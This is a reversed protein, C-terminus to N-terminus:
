KKLVQIPLQVFEHYNSISRLPQFVGIPLNFWGWGARSTLMVNNIRRWLLLIVKYCRRKISETNIRRELSTLLLLM